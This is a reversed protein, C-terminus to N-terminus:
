AHEPVLRMNLHPVNTKKSMFVEGQAIFGAKEYFELASCRASLWIVRARHAIALRVLTNLVLRGVGQGQHSPSVVMQSIQFIENNDSFLRGYGVVLEGDLAALHTAYIEQDDDMVDPRFGLEEFFLKFRIARAQEWECSGHAILKTIM